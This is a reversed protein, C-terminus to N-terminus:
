LAACRLVGFGDERMAEAMDEVNAQSCCLWLGTAEMLETESAALRAFAITALRM